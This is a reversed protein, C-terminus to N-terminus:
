YKCLRFINGGQRELNVNSIEDLFSFSSKNESLYITLACTSQIYVIFVYVSHTSIHTCTTKHLTDRTGVM